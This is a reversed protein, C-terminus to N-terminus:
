RCPIAKVAGTGDKGGVLWPGKKGYGDGQRVEMVSQALVPAFGFVAGLLVALIIKWNKM